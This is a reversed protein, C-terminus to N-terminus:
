VYGNIGRISVEGSYINEIGEKFEVVLEGDNNIEVAKGFRVNHSNIVRIEKGILSSNENLIKVLNKINGSEKFDIYHKEFENLIHATLIKRDIYKGEEIKISSAKYQLEVPFDKEESNVNVGIGMVIYNIRNLEAGMETLIGAVKKGKILIDNPWKIESKIGMNELAEFIAVAGIQTVKSLKYPELDPKLIVSMCIDKSKLSIWERDIRGKGRTQQDTTIVTGEELEAALEKAVRNTSDVCDFYRIDRGVFKTDLYREIEEYSLIDASTVLKYGKGSRSEINYGDDRLASIHKWVGARSIGIKDSISEGSIFEKKNNKLISLIESKM